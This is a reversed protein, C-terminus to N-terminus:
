SNTKGDNIFLFPNDKAFLARITVSCPYKPDTTNDACNISVIDAKSFIKNQPDSLNVQLQTAANYDATKASIDIGGTTQPISIGTLVANSPTVSGLRTLLKSFLVERSLVQVVLKLNNSIETIEKQVAGLNQRKLSATAMDNQRTYDNTQRQIYFFGAGSIVVLGVLGIGLMIVWRLLNLNRHAYRYSDKLDPPLFNIM